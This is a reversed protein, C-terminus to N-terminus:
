ATRGLEKEVESVFVRWSIHSIADDIIVIHFLTLRAYEIFKLAYALTWRFKQVHISNDISLHNIYDNM